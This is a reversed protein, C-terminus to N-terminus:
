YSTSKESPLQSGEINSLLPKKDVPLPDIISQDQGIIAFVGENPTGLVIHAGTLRLIIEPPSHIYGVKKCSANELHTTSCLTALLSNEYYSMPQCFTIVLAVVTLLFPLLTLLLQLYSVAAENHNVDVKVDAWVGGLILGWSILLQDIHDMNELYLALGMPNLSSDSTNKTGDGLIDNMILVSSTNIQGLFHSSSEVQTTDNALYASYCNTSHIIGGTTINSYSQDCTTFPKPANFITRVM